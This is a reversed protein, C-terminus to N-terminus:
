STAGFKKRERGFYIGLIIQLFLCKLMNSVNAKIFFLCSMDLSERKKKVADLWCCAETVNDDLEEENVAPGM